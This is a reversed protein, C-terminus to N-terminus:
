RYENLVCIISSERPKRRLACYIYMCVLHLLFLYYHFRFVVGEQM